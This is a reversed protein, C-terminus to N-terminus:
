NRESAGPILPAIKDPDLIRIDRDDFRCLYSWLMADVKQGQRDDSERCAGDVRLIETVDDVLLGWLRGAQECILVRGGPVGPGAKGDLQFSLDVVPCSVGHVPISGAAGRTKVEAPILRSAPLIEVIASAEMGYEGGGIGFCVLQLDATASQAAAPVATAPRKEAAERM